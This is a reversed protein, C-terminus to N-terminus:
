EKLDHHNNDDNDNDNHLSIIAVWDLFSKSFLNIWINDVGSKYSMMLLVDVSIM